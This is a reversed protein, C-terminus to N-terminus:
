QFFFLADLSFNTTNKFMGGDRCDGLLSSLNVLFLISQIGPTLLGSEVRRSSQWCPKNMDACNKTAVDLSLSSRVKGLDNQKIM